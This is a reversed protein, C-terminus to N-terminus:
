LKISKNIEEVLVPRGDRVIVCLDGFGTSRILQILNKEQETLQIKKEDKDM